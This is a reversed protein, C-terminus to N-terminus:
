NKKGEGLRREVEEKKQCEQKAEKERTKSGAREASAHGVEGVETM